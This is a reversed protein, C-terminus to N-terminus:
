PAAGTTAVLSGHEALWREAEAMRERGAAGAARLEPLAAQVLAHARAPERGLATLAQALLVRIEGRDMPLAEPTQVRALAAELADLAQRARGAKLQVEGETALAAALLRQHGSKRYITAARQTAATALDFRGLSLQANALGLLYDAVRPHESGRLKAALAVAREFHVQSEAARHQRFRVRGLINESSAVTVHEAGLAATALKRAQEARDGAEDLRGLDFLVSALNLLTQAYQPHYTGLSRGFLILAREYAQLADSFRGLGHYGAGVNATSLAVALHDPGFLDLHLQLARRDQESAEADRGQDALVAGRYAALLAELERDGRLGKLMSEAIRAYELGQEAQGQEHGVLRVLRVWARVARKRDRGEEAAYLARRQVEVAKAFEGALGLYEAWLELAEADLPRYRLENATKVLEAAREAGLQYRGAAQLVRVASLEHRLHTVQGRVAADMPLPVVSLLSDADACDDLRSLSRAASPAEHIWRLEPSTLLKSLSRLEALHQDLCRMRLDLLEESQEGSLRTAECAATRMTVWDHAYRDVAESVVRFVDHIWPKQSQQALAAFAHQIQRKRGADWIDVLHREAGLCLRSPARVGHVAWAASLGGLLVLGLLSAIRLRWAIPDRSLAQLLRDMSQWRAQPDIALGHLVVRRLWLPVGRQSASASVREGGRMSDRLAALSSGSFPRQHYLAEYLAVCFSFLDSTPGAPQGALQEPSM